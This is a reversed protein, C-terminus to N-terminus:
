GERFIKYTFIILYLSLFAVLCSYLPQPLIMTINILLNIISGLIQITGYIGEYIANFISGIFNILDILPNFIDFM